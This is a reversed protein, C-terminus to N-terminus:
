RASAMLSGAQRQRQRSQGHSCTTPGFLTCSAVDSSPLRWAIDAQRITSILWIYICHGPRMACAAAVSWAPISIRGVKHDFKCRWMGRRVYGRNADQVVFMSRASNLPCDAPLTYHADIVRKRVVKDIVWTAQRSLPRSCQQSTATHLPQEHGARQRSQAGASATIGWVCIIVNPADMTHRQRLQAKLAAHAIPMHTRTCCRMDAALTSWAQYVDNWRRMTLHHVQKVARLRCCM